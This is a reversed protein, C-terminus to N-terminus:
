KRKKGKATVTLQAVVGALGLAIWVVLIWRQGPAPNMPYALWVNNRATAEVALEKGQVESANYNAVLKAGERAYALAIARGFGRGAGTVLAVRGALRGAM